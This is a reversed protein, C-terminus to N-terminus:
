FSMFEALPLHNGSHPSASKSQNAKFISLVLSAPSVMSSGDVGKTIQYPNLNSTEPPDSLHRRRIRELKDLMSHPPPSGIVKPRDEHNPLSVYGSGRGLTSYGVMSSNNKILTSSMCKGGQKSGSIKRTTSGSICAIQSGQIFDV